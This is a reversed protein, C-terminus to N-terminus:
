VFVIDDLVDDRVYGNADRTSSATYPITFVSDPTNVAILDPYFDSKVSAELTFMVLAPSEIIVIKRGLMSIATDNDLPRRNDYQAAINAYVQAPEEDSTLRVMDITGDEDDLRYALLINGDEFTLCAWPQSVPAHSLARATFKQVTQTINIM